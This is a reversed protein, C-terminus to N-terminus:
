LKGAKLDAILTDFQAGFNAQLLLGHTRASGKLAGNRLAAENRAIWDTASTLFDECPPVIHVADSGGFTPICGRSTAVVPVGRVLAEALVLPLTETPYESPFVFLDLRAFFAEKDAGYVPGLHTVRGGSQAIQREAEGRERADHIPGALLAETDIDRADLCVHLDILRFLGKEATLNSLLGITLREGESKHCIESPGEPSAIPNPCTRTTVPGYHAALRAGMDDCLVVHTASPGATRAVLAMLASKRILYKYSHHHFVLRAGAMRGLLTNLLLFVGGLGDDVSQYLTTRRGGGRLLEGVLKLSCQLRRWSNRLPSPRTAPSTDLVRKGDFDGLADVVMRNVYAMGHHPPPLPVVLILRSM